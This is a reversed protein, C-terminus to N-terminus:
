HRTRKQTFKQRINDSSYGLQMTRLGQTTLEEGFPLYDHRSVKSLSGSQDFIMRPTGLQDAVLWNIQTSSRSTWAALVRDRLEQIHIAKIPFGQALGASYGGSPAGLAQDLATRMELIPNATIWDNTTVSYQWSYPALNLHGRLADIADHLETIHRARVTTENVILPNDHLTPAAGWGSTVTATVLLQGNRYGYEKQPSAASSNAAYEALLEGGLGYVQWVEPQGSISRRVRRGDADYTYNTTGGTSDQASTMRNEADYTRTAVGPSASGYSSWNDNVLNGANDYRMKRQNLNPGTLNSDGPALLRNTATEVEVDSHPINTSTNNDDIRRNGFRDYM